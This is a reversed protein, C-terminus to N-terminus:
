SLEGVVAPEDGAVEPVNIGIAIELDDSAGLVEDDGSAQVHDRLLDLLDEVAEVAHELRRDDSPGVRIEALHDDGDDHGIRAGGGVRLRQPRQCALAKGPNLTGFCTSTTSSSGRLARPLTSFARM